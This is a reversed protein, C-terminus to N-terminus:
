QAKQQPYLKTKEITHKKLLIKIAKNLYYEREGGFVGGSKTDASFLLEGEASLYQVTFLGHRLRLYGIKKGDIFADYQEPHAECTMKLEVKNM